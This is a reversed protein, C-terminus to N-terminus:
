NNGMSTMKKVNRIISYKEKFEYYRLAYVDECHNKDEHPDHVVYDGVHFQGFFCDDFQMKDNFESVRKIEKDTSNTDVTLKVPYIHLFRPDDINHRVWKPMKNPDHWMEETLQFAKCTYKRWKARPKIKLIKTKM